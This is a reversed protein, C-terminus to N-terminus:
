ACVKDDLKAPDSKVFELTRLNQKTEDQGNDTKTVLSREGM